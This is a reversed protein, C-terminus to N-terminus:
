TKSNYIEEEATSFHKSLAVPRLMCLETSPIDPQSLSVTSYLQACAQSQKFRCIIYICSALTHRQTPTERRHTCGERVSRTHQSLLVLHPRLILTNNEREMCANILSKPLICFCLIQTKIAFTAM